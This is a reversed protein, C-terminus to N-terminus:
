RTRNRGMDLSQKQSYSAAHTQSRAYRLVALIDHSSMENNKCRAHIGAFGGQKQLTVIM